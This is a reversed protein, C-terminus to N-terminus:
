NDGELISCGEVHCRSKGPDYTFILQGDIYLNVNPTTEDRLLEAHDFTSTTYHFPIIECAFTTTNPDEWKILLFEKGQNRNYSWIAFHYPENIASSEFHNEHPQEGYTYVLNCFDYGGMFIHVEKASKDIVLAIPRIWSGGESFQYIKVCELNKENCKFLRYTTWMDGIQGLNTVYYNKNDLQATSSIAEPLSLASIGLVFCFLIGIAFGIVLIVFRLICANSKSISLCSVVLAPFFILFSIAVAPTLFAKIQLFLPLPFTDRIVEYPFLIYYLLVLIPMVVAIVYSIRKYLRIVIM